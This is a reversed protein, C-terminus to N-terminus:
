NSCQFVAFSFKPIMGTLQTQQLLMWSTNTRLFYVAAVSDCVMIQWFLQICLQKVAKCLWVGISNHSYRRTVIRRSLSLKLSLKLGLNTRFGLLMFFYLSLANLKLKLKFSHKLFVMGHGCIHNLNSVHNKLYTLLCQCVCHCVSVCVCQDYYQTGRAPCRLLVM